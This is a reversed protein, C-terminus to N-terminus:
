YVNCRREHNEQGNPGRALPLTTPQPQPEVINNTHTDADLLAERLERLAELLDINMVQQEGAGNTAGHDTVQNRDHAEEAVQMPEIAPAVAEPIVERPGPQPM